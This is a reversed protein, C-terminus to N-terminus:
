ETRMLAEESNSVSGNMNINNKKESPPHDEGSLLCAEGWTSIAFGFSTASGRWSFGASLLFRSRSLDISPIPNSDLHRVLLSGLGRQAVHNGFTIELGAISEPANGSVVSVVV